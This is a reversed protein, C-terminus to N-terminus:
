PIPTAPATGGRVVWWGSYTDPNPTTNVARIRYYYVTGPTLGTDTFASTAGTYVNSYGYNYHTSREVNYSNAKVADAWDLSIQGSTSTSDIVINEIDIRGPALTDKKLIAAVWYNKLGNDYIVNNTNGVTAFQVLTNKQGPCSLNFKDTTQLTDTVANGFYDKVIWGINAGALGATMRNLHWGNDGEYQLICGGTQPNQYTTPFTFRLQGSTPAYVTTWGTFYGGGDTISAGGNGTFSGSLTGSPYYVWVNAWDTTFKSGVTVGFASLSEDPTVLMTYLLDATPYNIKIQGNTEDIHNTFGYYGHVNDVIWDWIIDHGNVQDSTPRLVGFYIDIDSNKLFNTDLGFKKIVSDYIYASDAGGGAATQWSANTGDTQLVKGSNGSQAPLFNNLAGNATSANSGGNAIPLISTGVANSSALNISGFNLSTGFRRLISHDNSASIDLIDDTANSPNGLISLAASQRIMTNTIANTAITGPQSGSGPGALLVGTLETIGGSPFDARIAAATDQLESRRVYNSLMGATDSINLKAALLSVLSDTVRQADAVTKIVTTDVKLLNSALGKGTLSNDHQVAGGQVVFSYWSGNKRYRLTSDNLVQISDIFDAFGSGGSGTGASDIWAIMGELLTHLRYNTFALSPSNTIYLDNWNRLDNTSNFVQAKVSCSVAILVIFLIHKM